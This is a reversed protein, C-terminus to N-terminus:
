WKPLNQTLNNMQAIAVGGIVSDLTEGLCVRGITAHMLSEYTM